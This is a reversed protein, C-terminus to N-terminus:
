SGMNQYAPPSVNQPHLLTTDPVPPAIMPSPYINQLLNPVPTTIM